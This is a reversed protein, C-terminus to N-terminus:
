NKKSKEYEAQLIEKILKLYSAAQKEKSFNERMFVRAAKGAEEIKERNTLFFMIGRVFDQVSFSNALYGTKKHLVAEKCGGINFVM